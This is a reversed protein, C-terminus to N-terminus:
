SFINLRSLPCLLFCVKSKSLRQSLPYVLSSLVEVLATRISHQMNSVSEPAVSGVHDCIVNTLASIVVSKPDKVKALASELEKANVASVFEMKDALERRDALGNAWFRRVNSDGIFVRSISMVTGEFQFRYGSVKFYFLVKTVLLVPFTFLGSFYVTVCRMPM